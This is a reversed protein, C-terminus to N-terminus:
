GLGLRAGHFDFGQDIGSGGTEVELGAEDLGEAQLLNVINNGLGRVPRVQEALLFTRKGLDDGKTM